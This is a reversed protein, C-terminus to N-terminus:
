KNLDYELGSLFARYVFKGDTNSKDETRITIRYRGAPLWLPDSNQVIKDNSYSIVQEGIYLYTKDGIIRNDYTMSVKANTIEWIKGEPIVLTTDEAIFDTVKDSKLTIYFAKTISIQNDQAVCNLVFASFFLIFFTRM